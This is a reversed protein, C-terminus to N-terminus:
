NLKNIFFELDSRTNGTLDLKLVEDLPIWEFDEGEGLKMDSKNKKFNMIYTYRWTVLKPHFYDRLYKMQGPNIEVDLEEKLERVICEEPSEGQKNTGGFFAWLNPNVPAKNDRKQMLVTKNDSNFLIVGAWFKNKKIEEEDINM